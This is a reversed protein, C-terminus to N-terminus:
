VGDDVSMNPRSRRGFHRAFFGPRRWPPAVPAAQIAKHDWITRGPPAALPAAGTPCAEILADENLRVEIAHRDIADIVDDWDTERFKSQAYYVIRREGYGALLDRFRPNAQGKEALDVPEDVVRPKGPDIGFYLCPVGYALAIAYGHLSNSVIRKCSLLEDLKGRVSAVDAATTMSILRVSGTLGGPVQYRKIKPDLRAEVAPEVIDHLHLVVGLEWKPALQPRYFRPLLAAPDGYPIAPADGGSLLKATNPGRTAHLRFDTGPPPTYPRKPEGAVRERWPSCGAGWVHVVGGRLKQGITGIAALRSMQSDFPAPEVSRGSVMTLLFPSLADGVNIVFPDQRM